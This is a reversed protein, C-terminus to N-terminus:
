FSVSKKRTWRQVYPYGRKLQPYFFSNFCLVKPLHKSCEASTNSRREILGFYANVVKYFTLLVDNFIVAAIGCVGSTVM